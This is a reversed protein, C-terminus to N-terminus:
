IMIPLGQIQDPNRYYTWHDKRIRLM